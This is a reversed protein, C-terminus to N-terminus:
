VPSWVQQAKVVGDEREEIVQWEASYYLLRPTLTQANESTRRGLADTTYRQITTAGDKVEVLKGWADYILTNGHDDTTLNGNADYTLNTTASGDDISTLQNQANHTRTEAAGDTWNQDAVRGFRDLGSCTTRARPSISCA